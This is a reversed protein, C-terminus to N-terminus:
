DLLVTLHSFHFSCVEEVAAILLALAGFVLLELCCLYVSRFTDILFDLVNQV